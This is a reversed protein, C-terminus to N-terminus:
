REVPDQEIVTKPDPEEKIEVLGRSLSPGVAAAAVIQTDSEETLAFSDATAEPRELGSPAVDPRVRMAAGVSVRAHDTSRCASLEKTAALVGAVDEALRVRHPKDPPVRVVAMREMPTDEAMDVLQFESVLTDPFHEAPSRANRETIVDRNARVWPVTVEASVNLLAAGEKNTVVFM